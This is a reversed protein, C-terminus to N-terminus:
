FKVKTLLLRILIISVILFFQNSYKPTSVQDFQQHNLVTDPDVNKDVDEDDATENDSDGNDASKKASASKDRYFEAHKGTFVQSNGNENDSLEVM